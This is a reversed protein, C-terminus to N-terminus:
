ARLSSPCQLKGTVLPGLLAWTDSQAVCHLWGCYVRRGLRLRERRQEGRLWHWLRSSPAGREFSHMSLLGKSLVSRLIGLLRHLEEQEPQGLGTFMTNLWEEHEAAMVRLRQIGAPTLRVKPARRDDPDEERQMCGESALQDTLGTVNGGTVMLYRSLVKMRLARPHRNLQALHNFRALMARRSRAACEANFPRNTAEQWAWEIAM